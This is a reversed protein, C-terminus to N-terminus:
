RLLADAALQECHTGSLAKSVPRIRAIARLIHDGDRRHAAGAVRVIDFAVPDGGAARRGDLEVECRKIDFM